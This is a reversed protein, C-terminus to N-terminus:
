RSYRADVELLLATMVAGAHGQIERDTGVRNHRSAVFRFADPHEAAGRIAGTAGIHRAVRVAPIASNAPHQVDIGDAGDRRVACARM